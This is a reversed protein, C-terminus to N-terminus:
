NARLPQKYIGLIVSISTFFLSFRIFTHKKFGRRYNVDQSWIFLLNCIWNFNNLIFFLILGFVGHVKKFLLMSSVMRQKTNWTRSISSGEELHVIRYQEYQKITLGSKTIRHCWELEESYMFFDEDFFGISEIRSKNFIMCAGHVAAIKSKPRNLQKRFLREVPLNWKLISKFSAIEYFVSRQALGQQDILQCTAMGIHEEDNKFREVLHKICNDTVITDSNLLCVIEGQAREIGKNNARGFGENNSNQIWIIDPFEGLLLSKSEDASNNDVVIIEYPLGSTHDIISRICNGTVAATNYNVLVISAEIM